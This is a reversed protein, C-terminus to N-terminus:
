MGAEASILTGLPAPREMMELEPIVEESFGEWIRGILSKSNQPDNDGWLVQRLEVKAQTQAIIQNFDTEGVVCFSWSHLYWFPKARTTDM